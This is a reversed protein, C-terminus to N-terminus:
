RGLINGVMREQFKMGSASKQTALNGLCRSIGPNVLHGLHVVREGTELSRRGPRALNEVRTLNPFLKQKMLLAAKSM